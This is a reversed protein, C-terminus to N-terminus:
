NLDLLLVSANDGGTEPFVYRHTNAVCLQAGTIKSFPPRNDYFVVKEIPQCGDYDQLARSHLLNEQQQPAPTEGAKKSRL